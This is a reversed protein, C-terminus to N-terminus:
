AWGEPMAGTVSIFPKRGQPVMAAAAAKLVQAIRRGLTPVAKM